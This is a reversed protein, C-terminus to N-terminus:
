KLAKYITVIFKFSVHQFFPFYYKIFHIGIGRNAGTVIANWGTLDRSKVIDLATSNENFNKSFNM